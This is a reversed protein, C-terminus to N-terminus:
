LIEKTRKKEIYEEKIKGCSEREVTCINDENQDNEIRLLNDEKQRRRM